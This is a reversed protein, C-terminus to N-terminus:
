SSAGAAGITLTAHLPSPPTTPTFITIKYHYPCRGSFWHCIFYNLTSHFFLDVCIFDKSRHSIDSVGECTPIVLNENKIDNKKYLTNCPDKSVFCSVQVFQTKQPCRRLVEYIQLNSWQFIDVIFTTMLMTAKAKAPV